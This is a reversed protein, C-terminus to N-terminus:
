LINKLIKTKIKIETHAILAYWITLLLRNLQFIPRSYLGNVSALYLLNVSQYHFITWPLSCFFIAQISLHFIRIFFLERLRPTKKHNKGSMLPSALEPFQDLHHRWPQHHWVQHRWLHHRRQQATKFLFLNRTQRALASIFIVLSPPWQAVSVQSEKLYEERGGLLQEGYVGTVCSLALHFYVPIQKNM